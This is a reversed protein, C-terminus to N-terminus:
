KAGKARIEGRVFNALKRGEDNHVIQWDLASEIEMKSPVVQWYEQRRKRVMFPIDVLILVAYLALNVPFPLLNSITSLGGPLTLFTGVVLTACALLLVAALVFVLGKRGITGEETVDKIQFFQLEDEQFGKKGNRLKTIKRRRLAPGAFFTVGDQVGKAHCPWTAAESKGM